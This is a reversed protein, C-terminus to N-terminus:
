SDYEVATDTGRLTELLQFVAEIMVAQKVIEVFALMRIDSRGDLFILVTLHRQLGCFVEDAPIDDRLLPSTRAYRLLFLHPCATPRLRVSPLIFKTRHHGFFGGFAIFWSSWGLM